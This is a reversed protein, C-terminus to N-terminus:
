SVIFIYCVELFSIKFGIKNDESLVPIVSVAKYKKLSFAM